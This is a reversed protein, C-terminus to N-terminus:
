ARLQLLAALLDIRGVRFEEAHLCLDVPQPALELTGAALGAVGVAPLLLERARQLQAVGLEGLRELGAASCRFSADATM